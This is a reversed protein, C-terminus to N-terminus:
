QWSATKALCVQAAAAAPLSEFQDVLASVTRNRCNSAGAVGALTQSSVMAPEGTFTAPQALAFATLTLLVVTFAMPSSVPPASAHPM